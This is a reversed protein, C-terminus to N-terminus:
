INDSEKFDMLSNSKKKHIGNRKIYKKKQKKEIKWEM